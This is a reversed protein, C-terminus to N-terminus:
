AAGASNKRIIQWVTEPKIPMDIHRIGFPSLADVIASVVAPTSGITGAEGVGKAGLPNVPSPTETSDLEFHPLMSARPLAYDMLTGTILQGNEDYVVEEYLAQGFSQCIGGHVQGHVLMPNIQKGCDDVAIYRDFHIDGTERDIEVVAIHTGFPFTFNKPEYFSTASLGPEMDEPLSKALHASLAVEQITVQKGAAASSTFKGDAFSVTSADVGLLHAALKGAQTKLKQLAMYVAVGGVALGRSGFTGIGYQVVATDGHIVTSDNVSVGLEDAAIQAFSTEEGQGHPSAGTLITVKGTPEIRVTASEWGGAPMASSPGLACIEVYTSIGIGVLRGEKRAKKQDDRLKTYDAMKLAKDLAQYAGHQLAVDIRHSDKIGFKASILPTELKNREHLAGTIVQVPEPRRGKDLDEIIRDLNRPTVNEYFDYNVQIAPAGACAGICEVEELSFMGDQTTEKHGIELRKKAHELLENGGRLMCAVNTCVQVHHKGIPKRHLMSYYQLTEEVQVTRLDLRRAIEEIIEDTVAGYEDQAYMMMPILASRKVPYRNQLQEFKAALKPSLEM